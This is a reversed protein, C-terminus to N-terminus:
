TKERFDDAHIRNVASAAEYLVNLIKMKQDDYYKTPMSNVIAVIENLKDFMTNKTQQCKVELAKTM